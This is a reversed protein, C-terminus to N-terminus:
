QVISKFADEQLYEFFEVDQAARDKLDSDKAVATRLSNYMLETDGDRAGVVAKLYYVMADDEEIDNLINEAPGYNGNLLQALATNFTTTNGLYNQASEYDGQMIKIIGLNYNVADGAGMASTFLDEAEGVNGKKLAIVGLNNKVIDHDKMERAAEFSEQAEDIDGMQLQVYGINNIARLCNPYKKYAEQYMRLKGRLDRTLAAAYLMEELNLTDPDSQALELIEEDSYGIKDVNVAMKSRRLEPLIGEKLVEFTESLNRIERERVVPDSYMSLVRLILEKDPIDSKQVLEKFGEWDEATAMMSFFETEDSPEIAANRMEREIYREASGQRNSSLEDNFDLPGDPSAYASIDIGKVEMREESSAKKMYDNLAQIDEKRLESNRVNYRNIIYHIDAETKEPIIRKFKDPMMIARPDKEVLTPTAVIGDAIKVPPIEVSNDGASAVAKVYLESRLMEDKYEVEDSYSISGGETYSIVKYNDEVAEGQVTESEFEIQGGDFQLYPTATLTAKKHFYKAPYSVDIQVPVKGAHTELIEPTVKYKVLSANDRMKTIGGCSSLVVALAIFSALNNLRKM